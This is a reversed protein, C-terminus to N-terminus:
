LVGGYAFPPHAAISFGNGLLVDRPMGDTEALAQDFTVIDATLHM